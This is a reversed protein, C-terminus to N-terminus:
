PIEIRNAYARDFKIFFYANRHQIKCNIISLKM